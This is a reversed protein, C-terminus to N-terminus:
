TCRAHFLALYAPTNFPDQAATVARIFVDVDAGVSTSGRQRVGGAALWVSGTPRLAASHTALSVLFIHINQWVHTHMILRKFQGGRHFRAVCSSM